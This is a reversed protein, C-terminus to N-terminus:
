GVRRFRFGDRCVGLTLAVLTWGFRMDSEQLGLKVFGRTGTGFRGGGGLSVKVVRSLMRGLQEDRRLADLVPTSIHLIVARLKRSADSGAAHLVAELRGARCQEIPCDGGGNWRNLLIM